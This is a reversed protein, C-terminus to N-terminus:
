KGLPASVGATLEEFLTPARVEPEIMEIKQPEFTSEGLRSLDCIVAPRAYNMTMRSSVFPACDYITILDPLRKQIEFERRALDGGFEILELRHPALCPRFAHGSGYVNVAIYILLGVNEFRSLMLSRRPNHMAYTLACAWDCFSGHVHVTNMMDRLIPVKAVRSVRASCCWWCTKGETECGDVALVRILGDGATGGEAGGEAEAAVGGEAEAELERMAEYIAERGVGGENKGYMIERVGRVEFCSRLRGVGDPRLDQVRLRTRGAEACTYDFARGFVVRDMRVANMFHTQSEPDRTDDVAKTRCEVSCYHGAWEVLIKNGVQYVISRPYFLPLSDFHCFCNFCRHPSSSPYFADAVEEVRTLFLSPLLRTSYFTGDPHCLDDSCPIIVEM